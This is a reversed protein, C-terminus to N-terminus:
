NKLRDVLYTYQLIIFMTVVPTWLLLQYVENRYAIYYTILLMGMMVANIIHVLIEAILLPLPSGWNLMTRIKKM